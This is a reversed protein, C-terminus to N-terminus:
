ILFWKHKGLVKAKYIIVISRAVENVQVPLILM